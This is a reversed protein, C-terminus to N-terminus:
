EAAVLRASRTGTSLGRVLTAVAQITDATAKGDKTLSTAIQNVIATGVVVGDAAAGILKAHEATKVGFGVCVPLDTHQKIRKVAGSVLSPDPLASGTIGNMSVYYVFGSTNNLVTPLRKDDTTPTALRIFNIGKRIAPICLEDDMEPPLDVVILGDIGATIADDLFKEVGYIYIPNYYGMMVIPTDADTKRFDAALQLTKKLTQGAKLARQGALQIAPGDAMPDSFPMGLEIVDAGADPLAKMIGLSTEYDPDGGMFYTVLAPRGEAKLAAFRKDMRATM